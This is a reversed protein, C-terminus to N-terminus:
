VGIIPCTTPELLEDYTRWQVVIQRSALVKGTLDKIQVTWAGYADPAVTRSAGSGTLLATRDTGDPGLLGWAPATPICTTSFPALTAQQADATLTYSVSEGGLGPVQPTVAAGM